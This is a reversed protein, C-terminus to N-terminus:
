CYRILSGDIIFPEIDGNNYEITNPTIKGDPSIVFNACAIHDINETTWTKFHLHCIHNIRLMTDSGFEFSNSRGPLEVKVSIVDDPEKIKVSIAIASNINRDSLNQIVKKLWPLVKQEFFKQSIDKSALLMFDILANVVILVVPDIETSKKLWKGFRIDYQDNKFLHQYPAIDKYLPYPLYIEGIPGNDDIYSNSGNILEVAEFSFGWDSTQKLKQMIDLEIEVGGVLAYEGPYEDLPEITVNHVRGVPSGFSEHNMRIHFSNPMSEKLSHLFAFDYKEGHADELTSALIQHYLIKKM